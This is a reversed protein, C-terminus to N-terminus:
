HSTKKYEVFYYLVLICFSGFIIFILWIYSRKKYADAAMKFWFIFFLVILIVAVLAMFFAAISGVIDQTEV